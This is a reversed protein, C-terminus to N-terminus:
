SPPTMMREDLHSMAPRNELADERWRQLAEYTSSQGIM